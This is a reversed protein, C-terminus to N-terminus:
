MMEELLGSNFEVAKAAAEYRHLLPIYKEPLHIVKSAENGVESMVKRACEIKYNLAERYGMNMFDIANVGYLYKSTKMKKKQNHFVM